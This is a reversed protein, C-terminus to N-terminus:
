IGAEECFSYFSDAYSKADRFDCGVLISVVRAVWMKDLHEYCYDIVAKTKIVQDESMPSIGDIEIIKM